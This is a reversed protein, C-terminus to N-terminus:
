LDASKGKNKKRLRRPIHTIGKIEVGFIGM